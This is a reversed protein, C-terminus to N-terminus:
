AARRLVDPVLSSVRDSNWGEEPQLDIGPLLSSISRGPTVTYGGEDAEVQDLEILMCRCNFGSPPFYRRADPDDKRFLKGNLAAHEPRTRADLIASYLVYPIARIRSPRFMQAYRGAAMSAQTNTRFVVDAYWASFEQGSFVTVDGGYGDLLKQASKLWDKVTSGSSMAEALSAQIEEVFRRDWVGALRTAQAKFEDELAAFESSTLATRDRWRKLTATLVPWGSV